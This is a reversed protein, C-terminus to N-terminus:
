PVCRLPTKGSTMGKEDYVQIVLSHMGPELKDIKVSFTETQSDFLGDHPRLAEFEGGDLAYYFARIISFSDEVKFTFEKPSNSDPQTKVLTIKPASHDIMFLESVAEVKQAQDINNDFEDTATVRARYWGEKFGEVRITAIPDETKDVIPIVQGEGGELVLSYRLRDGNVDSAKWAVTLLGPQGAKKLQERPTPDKLLREPNKESIYKQLDINPTNSPM